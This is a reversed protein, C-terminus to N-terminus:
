PASSAEPRESPPPDLTYRFDCHSAGEMITQTRSLRLRPNFGAGMAFDRNCSLVAGLEPVGLARYLEAYRCRTVNFHYERETQRLVETQLAGSRTWPELAAAFAALDDRGQARAVERGQAQAIGVIVDRAIQVARERGIERAFAEFLPGVIRAEVERRRLVGIENLEADSAM